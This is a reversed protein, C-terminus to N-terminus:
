RTTDYAGRKLQITTTLVKRVYLDPFPGREEGDLNYTQNQIIESTENTRLLLSVRVNVIRDYSIENSNVAIYRNVLGDNDLDEGFRIVMTEVNNVLPYAPSALLNDSLHNTCVLDRQENVYFFSEAQQNAMLPTGQCNFINGIDSGQYQLAFADSGNVGHLSTKILKSLPAFLPVNVDIPSPVLPKAFPNFGLEQTHANFFIWNFTPHYTLSEFNKIHSPQTRQRYLSVSGAILLTFLILLLLCSFISFGYPQNSQQHITM